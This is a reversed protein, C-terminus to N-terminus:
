GHGTGRIRRSAKRACVSYLHYKLSFPFRLLRVAHDHLKATLRRQVKRQWQLGSAHRDDAGIGFVDIEGLVAFSETLKEVFKM